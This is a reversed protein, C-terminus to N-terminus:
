AGPTDLDAASFTDCAGIGGDNNYGQMFWAQRQDGSGHTWSEPNVQGTAMSQIRDDGIASAASLADQVDTTTLEALFPESSGPAPVSAAAGAWLGAYCDAQLETRVAASDAGQPDRASAGLVGTLNQIHHGFEHAVVYEQALPGGSAGYQAVLEDFFATDYYTQEDAPCYFPGVASTASGCGTSTQGSFLTVGPETYTLGEAALAPGWYSDLSEATGVIRCDLRENADAGDLCETISPSSGSGTAADAGDTLGLSDVVDSGFVLSLILILGGGLGGGLAIGKGKGRHDRVRSSDLRANENFSM